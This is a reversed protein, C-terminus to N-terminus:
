GIKSLKLLKKLDDFLDREGNESTYVMMINGLPDALLIYHQNLAQEGLNHQDLANLLRERDVAAIALEPHDLQLAEVLAATAGLDGTHLYLRKVRKVERGMGIRTQRTLYLRQECAETCEAAGLVILQWAKIEDAALQKGKANVAALEDFQIPPLLLTGKNTKGQPVFSGTAYMFIAIMVPALAVLFITLLRRKNAQVLEPDLPQPSSKESEPQETM